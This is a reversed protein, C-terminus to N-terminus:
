SSIRVFIAGTEDTHILEVFGKNLPLRWFARLKGLTECHLPLSSDATKRLNSVVEYLLGDIFLVIHLM